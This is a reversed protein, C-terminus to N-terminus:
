KKIFKAIGTKTDSFSKIVYVGTEFDSVNIKLYKDTAETTYVLQGIKNYIEVKTGNSINTINIESDTPNPYVTLDSAEIADLGLNFNLNPRIIFTVAFGFTETYAWPQTEWSAFVTEPTVIADSYAIQQQYGPTEKVAVLYDGPALALAPSVKLTYMMDPTASITGSVAVISTTPTNTGDMNFVELTFTSDTLSGDTNGIMASISTLNIPNVITFKNGLYGIEGAGIGVQDFKVGNDRAYVSDSVIFSYTNNTMNGDAETITANYNVSYNGVSTPIYASFTANSTSGAAITTPSSANTFVVNAGNMVTVTASAGSVQQIGESKLSLSKIVNSGQTIPIISYELPSGSVKLDFNNICFTFVGGSDAGEFPALSVGNINVTFTAGGDGYDDVYNIDFCSGVTLCGVTETTTTNDGYGGATAVQTGGSSCSVEAINGYTAIAGNGCGNGTPTIDWFCEYGWSDTLVDVTVNAQGNPCQANSNFAFLSSLSLLTFFKKM